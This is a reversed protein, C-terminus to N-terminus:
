AGAALEKQIRSVEEQLQKELEAFLKLVESVHQALKEMPTDNKAGQEINALLVRLKEAKLMGAAGKLKHAKKSLLERNNELVLVNLEKIDIPSYQLFYTLVELVYNPDDLEELLALDYMKEPKEPEKSVLEPQVSVHFLLRIMRAYLDNFDFPKVMFDNMGVEASKEQDEKLATATMAIIPTQLHMKQRLYVTTEYGDMIPMQLDMIILDYAPNKECCEIAEKGNNAIDAKIQMKRLVFDILKQNVINDEVVLIRKGSLKASFDTQGDVVDQSETRGFPIVFIFESGNGPESNVTITGGQLEILGKSITLGLGAGGYGSSIKKGGQAFSKFITDLKDKEIGIGTDRLAFCLTSRKDTQEKLSITLTITGETTFKIANDILNTLIQKLRFADGRVFSPVGKQINVNFQLKKNKIAHEFHKTLEELTKPLDFAFSDLTLKGTSLNSYDLVNNVIVVLNNVSRSIINTFREQEETLTTELLLRTMGQIGNMPTRIEHSMNALFQEQIQQATEAKEVAQLLKQRSEVTDTIDTAIGSIGFMENRDNFLPFKILLFNRKGEPTDLVEELQISRKSAIVEDDGKKYHDALAKVNFDYDNRNIVMEDTVEFVEKFRRNVMLYRGELDKIFIIANANDLIANLRYENEKRKAESMDLEQAVLKKETIDKAMCQLGEIEGDDILLQASQEVWKVEGTRTHIRFELYTAAIQQTLQDTYFKRVEDSCSKDILSHYPKGVLEEPQYGTLALVKNNVFTVIGEKDTTYMVAGANEILKKYQEESALLEDEAKKRLRMDLNLRLLISLVLLFFFVGGAFAIYSIKKDNSQNSAMRDSLTKVEIDRIQQLLTKVSHSIRRGEGDPSIMDKVPDGTVPSKMLRVQFAEKQLCLDALENMYALQGPEEQTLTKLGQVSRNILTHLHYTQDEWQKEQSVLYSRTSIEAETFVLGISDIEKILLNTREVLLRTAEQKKKQEIMVFLFLSFAVLSFALIWRIKRDPILLRITGTKKM